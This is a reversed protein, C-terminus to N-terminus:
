VDWEKAAECQRTAGADRVERAMAGGSNSARMATCHKRLTAEFEDEEESAKCMSQEEEEMMPMQLKSARSRQQRCGTLTEVKAGGTDCHGDEAAASLTLLLPIPAREKDEDAACPADSELQKAKQKYLYVVVAALLPLVLVVFAVVGLTQQLMPPSAPPPLLPPPPMPPPSIETIMVNSISFQAKALDCEGSCHPGQLWSLDESHWLSLTLVMGDEMAERLLSQDEKSIPQEPKGGNGDKMSNFIIVENGEQGLMVQLAGNASFAAVVDFNRSTDIVHSPGPGFRREASQFHAACGDQNCHGDQGHGSQTHITTQAANRNAELLDVEVCPPTGGVGQIDCYGSGETAPAAMAVLYIAAICDCGVHNVNVTFHLAKGLLQLREYQVQSWEQKNPPFLPSMASENTVYMRSNGTLLLYSGGQVTPENGWSEAVVGTRGGLGDVIPFRYPVPACVAPLLRLVNVVPSANM